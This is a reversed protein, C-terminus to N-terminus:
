CDQTGLSTLDCTDSKCGTFANYAKSSTLSLASRRKILKKAESPLVIAHASESNRTVPTGNKLMDDIKDEEEEEDDDLDADHVVAQEKDVPPLETPLRPIQLPTVSLPLTQSM